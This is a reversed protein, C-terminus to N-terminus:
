AMKSASNPRPRHENLAGRPEAGTRGRRAWGLVAVRAPGRPVAGRKWRWVTRSSVGLLRALRGVTRNTTLAALKPQVLSESESGSPLRYVHQVEDPTAVTNDELDSLGNAEKGIAVL